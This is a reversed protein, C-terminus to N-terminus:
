EPKAEEVPGTETEPEPTTGTTDAAAEGGDAPASADQAEATATDGLQRKVLTEMQGARTKVGVPAAADFRLDQYIKLAGALDGTKVLGYAKLELGFHRFASNTNETLPRLNALLDQPEAADVQLLAQKLIALDRMLPDTGSIGAVQSYSEIAAKTEGAAEQLSAKRMLAAVPYGGAAEVSLGDFLALAEKPKEDEVLREAELFTASATAFQDAKWSQWGTYGLGGVVTIALTGVAIPGYKRALEAFKEQRLEENVERELSESSLDVM